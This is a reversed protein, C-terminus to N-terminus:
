RFTLIHTSNVYIGHILGERLVLAQPHFTQIEEPFSANVLAFEIQQHLSEQFFDARKDHVGAGRRENGQPVVDQFVM